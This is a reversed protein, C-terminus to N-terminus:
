SSLAVCIKFVILGVWGYYSRGRTHSRPALHLWSHTVRVNESTVVRVIGPSMMSCIPNKGHRSPSSWLLKIPFGRNM